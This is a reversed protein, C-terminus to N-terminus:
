IWEFIECCLSKVKNFCEDITHYQCYSMKKFNYDHTIRRQFFIVTFTDWVEKPTEVKKIHQLMEKKITNNIAFIAKRAKTNWKKWAADEISPKVDNGCIMEWIDRGQLYSKMLIAWINYNKNNLKRVGRVVQLNGMINTLSQCYLINSM